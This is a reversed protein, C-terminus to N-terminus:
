KGTRSGSLPKWSLEKGFLATYLAKMHEIQKKSMIKSYEGMWSRSAQEIDEYSLKGRDLLCKYAKLRRRERTVSKPNIRRIVKGTPTLTYRIQLYRFTGGLPVIQTKRENIFMGMAKAEAIVGSIIDKLEERNKCIIYMDDMYRGYWKCGRVIKCYNDIPTPFFIGIDQSLQDGIDVSKKMFKEGTRAEEPVKEYYEVSNFKRGMCGAFEEDTMYSVDVEFTKLIEELIWRGEESILPGIM